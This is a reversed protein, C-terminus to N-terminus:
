TSYYSNDSGILSENGSRRIYRDGSKDGDGGVDDDLSRFGGTERLGM